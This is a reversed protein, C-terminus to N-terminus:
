RGEDNRMGCTRIVGTEMLCKRVDKCGLKMLCKRVDKCGAGDSTECLM